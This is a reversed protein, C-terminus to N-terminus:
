MALDKTVVHGCDSVSRESVWTEYNRCTMAIHSYIKVLCLFCAGEMKTQTFINHLESFSLWIEAWCCYSKYITLCLTCECICDCMCGSKVWSFSPYTQLHFMCLECLKDSFNSPSSRLLHIFQLFVCHFRLLVFKSYMQCRQIGAVLRKARCSSFYPLTVFCCLDLIQIPVIIQVRTFRTLVDPTRTDSQSSREQMWAKHECKPLLIWKRRTTFQTLVNRQGFSAAFNFNFTKTQICKQLMRKVTSTQTFLLTRSSCCWVLKYSNSNTPVM